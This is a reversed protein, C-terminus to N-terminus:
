GSRGTVGRGRSPIPAPPSPAIRAGILRSGIALLALAAGVGAGVMAGAAVHIGFLMAGIAARSHYDGFDITKGRSFHIALHTGEALGFTVTGVVAGALVLAVPVPLRMRSAAGLTSVIIAPVAVAFLVAPTLHAAEAWVGIALAVAPAIFIAYRQRSM